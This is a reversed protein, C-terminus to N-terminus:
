ESVSEGVWACVSTAGGVAGNASFMFNVGVRFADNTQLASQQAFASQFASAIPEVLALVFLVVVLTVFVAHRVVFPCIKSARTCQCPTPPPDPAGHCHCHCHRHCRCHCHSHCHRWDSHMYRPRRSALARASFCASQLVACV